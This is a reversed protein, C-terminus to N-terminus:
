LAKKLNLQMKNGQYGLSRYFAHAGTRSEGSVLRIGAAGQKKAWNEAATLLSKGIGRRQYAPNVAIGMINKLHEGYLVDYDVLHLYGVVSGELEAILIKNRGDNLLLALKEATKDEPYEYGMAVKNLWTLAPADEPRADRIYFRMIQKSSKKSGRCYGSRM